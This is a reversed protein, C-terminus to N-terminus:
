NDRNKKRKGKRFLNFGGFGGLIAIYYGFDYLFGRNHIEYINIGVKFISIILSIPAIWGHWIGWFFGAENTSSASGDGPVCGTLLIIFSIIFILSLYKKM